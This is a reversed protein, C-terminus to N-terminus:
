RARKYTLSDFNKKESEIIQVVTNEDVIILPSINCPEENSSDTHIKLLAKGLYKKRNELSYMQSMSLNKDLSCFDLVKVKIYSVDTEAIM